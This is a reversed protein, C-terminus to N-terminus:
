RRGGDLQDQLTQLKDWKGDAALRAQQPWTAPSHSTFRPGAEVLISNLKKQSTSALKKFSKIGAAHLLKEIKPGIGEVRKLNDARKAKGTKAPSVKKKAPKPKTASVRSASSAKGAQRNLKTLEREFKRSEGRLSKLESDQEKKRQTLKSLSETKTDLSKKLKNLESDSSKAQKRLTFITSRQERLQEKRLKADEALKALRSELKVVKKAAASSTMRKTQPVAESRQAQIEALETNSKNIKQELRGRTASAEAITSELKEIASLRQQKQEDLEAKLRGVERNSAELKSVKEQLKVNTQRLEGTIKQVEEAVGKSDAKNSEAESRVAQLEIKAARTASQLNALETRYRDARLKANAELDTAKSEAAVLKAAM